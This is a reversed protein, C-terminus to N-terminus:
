EKKKMSQIISAVTCLVLGRLYITYARFLHLYMRNKKFVKIRYKDFLLRRKFSKEPMTYYTYYGDLKKFKVINSLRIWLDLDECVELSSDFGGVKKLYKRKVCVSSTCIKNPIWHNKIEYENPVVVRRIIHGFKDVIVFDTYSLGVDYTQMLRLQNNIKEPAYYDDADLFFVYEYGAEEIGKNRALAPNTKNPNTIIKYDINDKKIEELFRKYFDLNKPEDWVIIVEIEDQFKQNVISSLAKILKKEERHVPIIVSVGVM